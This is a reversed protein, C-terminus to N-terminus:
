GTEKGREIGLTALLNEHLEFWVSHYSDVTPRAFWDHEGRGVRVLAATLRPRYTGFRELADALSECIPVAGAHVRTLHSVVTGDYAADGHDNITAGEPTDRLQWQTCLALVEPNLQAFRRYGSTVVARAHAADLEAAARGEDEARGKATLTWGSV